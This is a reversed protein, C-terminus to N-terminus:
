KESNCMSYIYQIWYSNFLIDLNQDLQMLIAVEYTEDKINIM